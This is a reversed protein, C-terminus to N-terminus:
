LINSPSPLLMTSVNSLAIGPMSEFEWFQSNMKNCSDHDLKNSNWLGELKRQFDAELVPISNLKEQTTNSWVMVKRTTLQNAALYYQERSSVKWIALQLMMRCKCFQRRWLHLAKLHFIPGGVMARRGAGEVKSNSNWEREAKSNIPM